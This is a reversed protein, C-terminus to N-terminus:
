NWKINDLVWRWLKQSENASATNTYESTGLVVTILNHGDKKAISLLCHGAENTFGTKGGIVEPTFFKEDPQILRNSNKLEHSWKQDVSKISYEPISIIKSFEPYKLAYRAIVALDFATSKNEESLGTPDKFVTNVLGMDKAKQNMLNVFKDTGMQESLAVGSDNASNILLAYLLSEVTLQEGTRLQIDSGITLAANSSITIVDNLKYNELVIIANMIKTISAIALPEHINKQYIPYFTDSDIVIASKAWIQPPNASIQPM